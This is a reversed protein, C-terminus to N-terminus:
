AAGRTLLEKDRLQPLVSKADGWEPHDEARDAAVVIARGICWEVGASVDRGIMKNIQKVAAM